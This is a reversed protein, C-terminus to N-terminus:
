YFIAVDIAGPCFNINYIVLEFFAIKMKHIKRKNQM